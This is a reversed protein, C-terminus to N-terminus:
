KDPQKNRDHWLGALGFNAWDDLEGRIARALLPTFRDSIEADGGGRFWWDWQRVRAAPDHSPLSPFWFQLVDEFEETKM